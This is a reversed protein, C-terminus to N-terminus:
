LKHMHASDSWDDQSKPVGHVTAQWTGRNRPNELCSSQLPNGIGEEVPDERGLSQVLDRANCASERSNLGGPFGM